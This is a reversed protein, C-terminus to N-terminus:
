KDEDEEATEMHKLAIKRQKKYYAIDEKLIEAAATLNNIEKTKQAIKEDLEAVEKKLEETTM